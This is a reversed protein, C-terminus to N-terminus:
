QMVGAARAQAIQNDISKETEEAQQQERSAMQTDYGTKLAVLQAQANNTWTTELEIQAQLDQVDKPTSATALRDRLAQLAAEHSQLDGYTAMAAGQTGAIQNGRAILQQSAWTGDTPSYVHNAAYSQQSLNGLVTLIGQIEPVGGQGYKVGWILAQVAAAQNPLSSGLGAANLLMMAGGITPNHVFALLQTTETLYQKGQLVYQAGQRAYGEAELLYTKAEQAISTPDIVPVDAFAARSFAVMCISAALYRKM